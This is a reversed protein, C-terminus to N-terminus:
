SPTFFGSYTGTFSPLLNGQITGRGELGRLGGTGGFLTYQGQFDNGVFTAQFPAFITGSFTGAATTISGTFTNEGYFVGRGTGLNIIITVTGTTTGTFAGTFALGFTEHITLINATQSSTVGSVGTQLFTGSGQFVSANGIPLMLLLAFLSLLGL